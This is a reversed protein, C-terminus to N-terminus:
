VQSRSASQVGAGGLTCPSRERSNRTQQTLTARAGVRGADPWAGPTLAEAALPGWTSCSQTSPNPPVSKSPGTPISRDRLGWLPRLAWHPRRQWRKSHVSPESATVRWGCAASQLSSDLRQGGTTVALSQGGGHARAQGAGRTQPPQTLPHHRKPRRDEQETALDRRVTVGVPQLM